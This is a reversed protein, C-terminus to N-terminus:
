RIAYIKRIENNLNEFRTRWGPVIRQKLYHLRYDSAPARDVSIVAQMFKKNQALEAARGVMDAAPRKGKPFLHGIRVSGICKVGGGLMYSKISVLQEELGYGSLGEYGRIYDWWDRHAAYAAGLICPVDFMDGAVEPFARQVRWYRLWQVKLNECFTAGAYTVNDFEKTYYDYQECLTCFINKPARNIAAPIKRWWEDDHFRMHGDILLFYPTKCADIGTQKAPGSGTRQANEIYTVQSYRRSIDGYDTGDNSGDNVLVINVADGATRKIERVTTEVEDRENFFAIVVSLQPATM